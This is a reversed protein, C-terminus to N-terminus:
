ISQTTLSASLCSRAAAQPNQQIRSDSLLLRYDAAKFPSSIGDITSAVCGMIRLVVLQLYAASKPDAVAQRQEEAKLFRELKKASFFREIQEACSSDSLLRRGM